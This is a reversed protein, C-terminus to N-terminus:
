PSTWCMDFLPRWDGNHVHICFSQGLDTRAKAMIDSAIRRAQEQNADHTQVWLDVPTSWEASGVGSISTEVSRAFQSQIKSPKFGEESFSIGSFAALFILSILIKLSLSRM